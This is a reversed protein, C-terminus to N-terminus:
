AMARLRELDDMTDVTLKINEEGPWRRVARIKFGGKRFRPTVHEREHADFTRWVRLFTATRVCEIQHGSPFGVTHVYDADHVRLMEISTEIVGADIFPSDACVRVFADCPHEALAQVFRLAVNEGHGRVLAIKRWEAIRAALPDDTKAEPIACIVPLGAELVRSIVRDIVARGGIKMMVKGPLRDSGMRAQIIINTKM